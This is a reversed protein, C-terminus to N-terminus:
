NLYIQSVTEALGWVSCTGTGVVTITRGAVQAAIVVAIMARGGASNADIAFANTNATNCGIDSDLTSVYIFFPVAGNTGPYITPGVVVTVNSVTGAAVVTPIVGAVLILLLARIGKYMKIM